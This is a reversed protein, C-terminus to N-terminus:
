SESRTELSADESDEWITNLKKKLVLLATVEALAKEKRHLEKRLRINEKKLKRTEKKSEISKENVMDTLEQEFLTLHEEHLGHARLWEGRKEPNLTKSELLVKMKEKPNRDAPRSEGSGITGADLKEKWNRLTQETIGTERAVESLSRSEPPLIKKLINQRFGTSYKM